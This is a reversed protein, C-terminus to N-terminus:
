GSLVTAQFGPKFNRDVRHDGHRHDRFRYRRHRRSRFPGRVEYTIGRGDIGRQSSFYLRRFSPDFAPGTLESNAQNKIRLLVLATKRPGLLVLEMNDGDEAVVIDGKPTTLLNDVGGLQKIPASLAFM